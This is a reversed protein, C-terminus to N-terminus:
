REYMSGELQSSLISEAMGVSFTQELSGKQEDRRRAFMKVLRQNELMENFKELIQEEVANLTDVEWFADIYSNIEEQTRWRKRYTVIAKLRKIFDYWEGSVYTNPYFIKVIREKFIPKYDLLEAIANEYSSGKHYKAIIKEADNWDEDTVKIFPYHNSWDKEPNKIIEPLISTINKNLKM